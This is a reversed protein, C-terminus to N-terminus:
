FFNKYPMEAFNGIKFFVMLEKKKFLNKAIKISEESLDIGYTSFGEEAIM